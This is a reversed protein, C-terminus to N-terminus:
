RSKICSSGMERKKWFSTSHYVYFKANIQSTTTSKKIRDDKRRLEKVTLCNERIECTSLSNSYDRHLKFSNSNEKETKIKQSKDDRNSLQHIKFLM